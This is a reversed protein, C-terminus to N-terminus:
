STSVRSLLLESTFRAAETASRHASAARDMRHCLYAALFVDGAGTPDCNAVPPSASWRVDRQAGRLVIGGDVGDTVLTETAGRPPRDLAGIHLHGQLTRWEVRSAKLWEIRPLVGIIRPDLVATIRENQVQRAMGQIDLAIPVPSEAYLWAPDLDDPHLPGLHLWDIGEFYAAAYEIPPAVATVRQARSDNAGYSNEFATTVGSPQAILEVGPLEAEILAVDPAALRTVLRVNVGFQRYTRAAFLATGGFSCHRKGAFINTDRTISGVVLVHKPHGADIV